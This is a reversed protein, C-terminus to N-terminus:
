TTISCTLVVHSRGLRYASVPVVKMTATCEDGFWYGGWAKDMSKKQNSYMACGCRFVEMFYSCSSFFKFKNQVILATVLIVEARPFM